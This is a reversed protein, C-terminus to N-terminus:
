YLILIPTLIITANRNCRTRIITAKEVMCEGVRGEEGWCLCVKEVMDWVGVAGGEFVGM